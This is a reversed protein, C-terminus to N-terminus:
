ATMGAKQRLGCTSVYVHGVINVAADCYVPIVIDFQGWGSAFGSLFGVGEEPWFERSQVRVLVIAMIM